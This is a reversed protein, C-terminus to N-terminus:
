GDGCSDNTDDEIESNPESDMRHKTLSHRYTCKGQREVCRHEGADIEPREGKRQRCCEGDETELDAHDWRKRCTAKCADDQVQRSCDRSGSRQVRQRNRMHASRAVPGTCTSAMVNSRSTTPM